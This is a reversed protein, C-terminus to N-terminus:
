KYLVYLYDATFISSLRNFIKIMENSLNTEAYELLIIFVQDLTM